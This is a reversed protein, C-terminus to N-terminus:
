IKKFLERVRDHYNELSVEHGLHYHELMTDLHLISILDKSLVDEEYHLYAYMWGVWYFQDISYENVNTGGVLDSIDNDCDVTVFKEVSNKAAQSLLRPHGTEMKYRIEARMFKNLFKKKDINVEYLDKCYEDCYEFIYGMNQMDKSLWWKDYSNKKKIEKM